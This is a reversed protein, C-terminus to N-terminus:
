KEEEKEFYVNDMFVQEFEKIDKKSVLIIAYNKENFRKLYAHVTYGEDNIFDAYTYEIDKITKTTTEHGLSDINEKLTHEEDCMIRLSFIIEDKINYNMTRIYGIADTHFDTYNEKYHIDKLVEDGYLSFEQGDIKFTVENRDSNRSYNTPSSVINCGAMVLSVIFVLICLFIKKMM